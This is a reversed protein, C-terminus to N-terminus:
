RSTHHLPQSLKEKLVDDFKCRGLRLLKEPDEVIVGEKLLLALVPRYRGVLQIDFSRILSRVGVPQKARIKDVVQEALELEKRRASEDRLARLITQHGELLAISCRRIVATFDGDALGPAPEIQELAWRLFEPVHRLAACPVESADCAASFEAEDIALRQHGEMTWQRFVAPHGKRRRNLLESTVRSHVHIFRAAQAPDMTTVPPKTSADVLVVRDAFDPMRGTISSIDSPNALLLARILGRERTVMSDGVVSEPLDVDCGDLFAFFSERDGKKAAVLKDVRLGPVLAISDHSLSVLRSLFALEPNEMIMGLRLLTRLRRGQLDPEMDKDSGDQGTPFESVKLAARHRQGPDALTGGMGAASSAEGIMAQRADRFGASSFLAFRRLLHADVEMATSRLADLSRPRHAGQNVLVPTVAPLDRRGWPGAAVAQTGAAGALIAAMQIAAAAETTGATNAWASIGLPDPTVPVHSSSQPLNM